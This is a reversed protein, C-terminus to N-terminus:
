NFQKLSNMIELRFCCGFPQKHQHKLLESFCPGASSSGSSEPSADALQHEQRSALMLFSTRPTYFFSSVSLLQQYEFWISSHLAILLTLSLSPADGVWRRKRWARNLSGQQGFGVLVRKAFTVQPKCSGLGMFVCCLMSKHTQLQLVIKIILVSLFPMRTGLPCQLKLGLYHIACFTFPSYVLSGAFQLTQLLYKHIQLDISNLRPSTVCVFQLKLALFHNFLFKM